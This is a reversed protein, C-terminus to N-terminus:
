KFKRKIKQWFTLKDFGPIQEIKNLESEVKIAKEKYKKIEEKDLTNVNFNIGDPFYYIGDIEYENNKNIKLFLAMNLRHFFRRNVEQLKGSKYFDELSITKSKIEEIKM